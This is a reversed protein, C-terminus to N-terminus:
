AALAVTVLGDIQERADALSKQRLDDGYALGQAFVFESEIGIFRLFQRL